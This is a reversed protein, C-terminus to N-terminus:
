AGAMGAAHNQQLQSAHPPATFSVNPEMTSRSFPKRSRRILVAFPARCARSREKSWTRERLRRVVQTVPQAGRLAARKPSQVWTTRRWFSCRAHPHM